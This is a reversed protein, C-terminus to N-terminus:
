LFIFFCLDDVLKYYLHTLKFTLRQMHDVKFSFFFTKLLLINLYLCFRVKNSGLYCQLTDTSSNRTSCMTFNFLFWVMWSFFSIKL